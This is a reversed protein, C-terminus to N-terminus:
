AGYHEEPNFDGPTLKRVLFRLRRWARDREGLRWLAMLGPLEDHAEPHDRLAPLGEILTQLALDFARDSTTDQYARTLCIQCLTRAWPPVWITTHQLGSPVRQALARKGHGRRHAYDALHLGGAAVEVRVGSGRLVKKLRELTDQFPHPPLDKATLPVLETTSPAM